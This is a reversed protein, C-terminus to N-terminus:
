CERSGMRGALYEADLTRWENPALRELLHVGTDAATATGDFDHFVSTTSLDAMPRSGVIGAHRCGGVDEGDLPGIVHGGQPEVAGFAAVCHARREEASQ